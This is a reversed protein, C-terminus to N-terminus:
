SLNGQSMNIELHALNTMVCTVYCLRQRRQCIDGMASSLERPRLSEPVYKGLRYRPLYSLVPYRPVRHLTTADYRPTDDLLTTICSRGGLGWSGFGRVMNMFSADSVFAQLASRLNSSLLRHGLLLTRSSVRVGGRQARAAGLAHNAKGRWAM